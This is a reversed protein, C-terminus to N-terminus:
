TYIYQIDKKGDKGDAPNWFCSTEKGADLRTLNKWHQVFYRGLLGLNHAPKLHRGPVHHRPHLPQGDLVGHEWVHARIHLGGEAKGVLYSYCNYVAKVLYTTYLTCFRRCVWLTPVCSEANRVFYIRLRRCERCPLYVTKQKRWLTPHVAKQKGLLISVIGSAKKLLYTQKEWLTLECGEAKRVLYTFLRRNKRVLYIWLKRSKECPLYVAKQKRV